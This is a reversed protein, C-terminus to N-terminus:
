QQVRAALRLLKSSITVGAERAAKNSIEFRIQSGTRVLGITGGASLFGSGDGIIVSGSQRYRMVEAQKAPGVVVVDCRIRNDADVARYLISRNNVRQGHLLAMASKGSANPAVCLQIPRSSQADPFDIYRILNLTIAVKLADPNPPAARASPMAMLLAGIAPAFFLYRM